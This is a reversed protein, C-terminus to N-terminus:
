IKYNSKIFNKYLINISSKLRKDAEEWMQNFTKKEKICENRLKVAKRGSMAQIKPDDFGGLEAAIERFIKKNSDKSIKMEQPSAYWKVNWSNV